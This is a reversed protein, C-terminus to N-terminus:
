KPAGPQSSAPPTPPLVNRVLDRNHLWTRIDAVARSEAQLGVVALRRLEPDQGLELVIQALDISSQHFAVIKQALDKDIDDTPPATLVATTRRLVDSIQQRAVEADVGFTGTAASPPRPAAPAPVADQATARLPAAVTLAALVAAAAMLGAGRRHSHGTRALPNPDIAM